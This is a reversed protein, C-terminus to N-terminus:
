YRDWDKRPSSDNLPRWFWYYYPDSVYGLNGSALKTGCSPVQKLRLASVRGDLFLTNSSGGHRYAYRDIKSKDYIRAVYTSDMSMMTRSPRAPNKVYVPNNNYGYEYTGLGIHDVVYDNHFYTYARKGDANGSLTQALDQNFDPCALPSVKDHLTVGGIPVTDSANKLGLHSKLYPALLDNDNFLDWIHHVVRGNDSMWSQPYCDWDGVYMALLTGVSRLNNMCATKRAMQRARNLAPLLMGALIAIIAIVVLLEILTFHRHTLFVYNFHKKAQKM